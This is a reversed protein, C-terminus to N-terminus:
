FSRELKIKNNELKFIFNNDESNKVIKEILSKNKKKLTNKNNSIIIDNFKCVNIINKENNSPLILLEYEESPSCYLVMGDLYKDVFYYKSNTDPNNNNKKYVYIFIGLEGLKKEYFMEFYNDNNEIYKVLDKLNYTIM